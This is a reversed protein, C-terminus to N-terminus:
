EKKENEEGEVVAVGKARKAREEWLQIALEKDWVARQDGNLTAKIQKDSSHDFVQLQKYLADIQDFVDQKMRARESLINGIEFIQEKSLGLKLAIVEMESKLEEDPSYAAQAMSAEAAILLGAIALGTTIKTLTSM